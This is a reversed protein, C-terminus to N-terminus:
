APLCVTFTSGKVGNSAARVTGGHQEVIGRVIALGLGAGGKERADGSEV